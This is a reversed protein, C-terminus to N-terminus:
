NRSLIKVKSNLGSPVLSWNAYTTKKSNIDVVNADLFHRWPINQRDYAAIRNAPLNTVEIRISNEGNRIVDAPCDLTMPQCWATGVYRNNIYVRASERVDGLDIRYGKAALPATLSFTTTYVGTGMLQSISDNAITEWAQLRALLITDSVVPQSETFTLMWPQETLDAVEHYEGPQAPLPYFTIPCGNADVDVFCSEGSRLALHLPQSTVSLSTETSIDEPTLNAIFYRYADGVRRRIMKLHHLCRVPEPRAAQAM